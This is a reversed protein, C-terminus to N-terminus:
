SPMLFLRLIKLNPLKELTAMPDEELFTGILTLKALNSSFQHVEPLKKIDNGRLHLNYIHPCSSVIQIIDPSGEFYSRVNLKEIIDEAAKRILGWRLFGFVTSHSVQPCDSRKPGFM